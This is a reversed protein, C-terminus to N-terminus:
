MLLGQRLHLPPQLSTGAIFLVTKEQLPGLNLERYECLMECSDTGGTRLPGVDRRTGLLALCLCACASCEACLNFIFLYM